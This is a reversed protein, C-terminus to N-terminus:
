CKRYNDRYTKIIKINGNNNVIKVTLQMIPNMEEVIRRLIGVITLCKEVSEEIQLCFRDLYEVIYVLIGDITVYSGMSIDSLEALDIRIKLEQLEIASGPPIYIVTNLDISTEVNIEICKDANEYTIPIIDNKKYGCKLCKLTIIILVDQPLNYRSVTISAEDEGCQPCLIKQELLVSVIEGTM